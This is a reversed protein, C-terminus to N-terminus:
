WARVIQSKVLLSKFVITPGLVKKAITQVNAARLM